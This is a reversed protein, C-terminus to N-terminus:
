DTEAETETETTDDTDPVHTKDKRQGPAGDKGHGHGHVKGHAEDSKGHKWGPHTEGVAKPGGAWPPKGADRIAKGDVTAVDLETEGTRYTGTVEVSKGVFAALPNHDGWYWKPGASLEWTTGDVTMSFTARDKGDKAAAITGHLTGAIAPAKDAKEPKTSPSAGFVPAALLAIAALAAILLALRGPTSM